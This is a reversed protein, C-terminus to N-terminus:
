RAKGTENESLVFMELTRTVPVIDLGYSHLALRLAPLDQVDKLPLSMDVPGTYGTEDLVVPHIPQGLVQYNVARLLESLPKGRLVKVATDREYLNAYPATSNGIGRKLLATDGCVLAFCNIRRKEMHGYLGLCRNLDDLMLSRIKKRSTGAPVTIEYCYGNQRDWDDLNESYRIFRSSDSVDLVIRNSTGSLGLAASYLSLLPLNIYYIRHLTSDADFRNGAGSFLGDLYHTLLSRYLLNEETGGNGDQLLPRNRDFDMVDKKERLHLPIGAILKRINPYNLEDASTIAAVKGARDIWVDHPILKHPFLYSLVSDDCIFPLSTQAAVHNKALFSKVTAVPEYDVVFVQVSDGLRKQLADLSPLAAICSGCWTAFFDLIIPKHLARLNTLSTPYRLFSGVQVDPLVDGIGLTHASLPIQAGGSRCLGALLGLM